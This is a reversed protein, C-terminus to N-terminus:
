YKKCVLAIELLVICQFKACINYMNVICCEDMIHYGYLWTVGRTVIVTIISTIIVKIKFTNNHENWEVGACVREREYCLKMAVINTILATLFPPLHAATEKGDKATDATGEWGLGPTTAPRGSAVSDRDIGVPPPFPWYEFM